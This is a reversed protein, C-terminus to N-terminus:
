GSWTRSSSWDAWEEPTNFNTISDTWNIEHRPAGALVVNLPNHRLEDRTPTVPILVPHGAQGEVTPVIPAGKNRLEAYIATPPPPMDVPIVFARAATPLSSLALVLSHRPETTDWHRNFITVVGQPIEKRINQDDAGIVVAIENCIPRMAEVHLQILSMGGLRLLAKSEGMRTSGGAALIIGYIGADPPSM